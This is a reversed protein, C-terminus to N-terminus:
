NKVFDRGNLAREPETKRAAAANSSRAESSAAAFDDVKELRFRIGTGALVTSSSSSWSSSLGARQSQGDVAKLFIRYKVTGVALQPERWFKEDEGAEVRVHYM